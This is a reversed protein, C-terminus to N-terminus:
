FRKKLATCECLMGFPIKRRSPVTVAKEYASEVYVSLNFSNPGAGKARLNFFVYYYKGASSIRFVNYNAPLVGVTSNPNATLDAFIQPLKLSQTHRNPCFIREIAPDMVIACRETRPLKEDSYVHNSYTVAMQFTLPAAGRPTWGFTHRVRALHSLDYDADEHNIKSPHTVLAL